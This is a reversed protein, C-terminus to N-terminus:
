LICQLCFVFFSMTFSFCMVTCQLSSWLWTIWEAEANVNNLTLVFSKIPMLTLTRKQLSSPFGEPTGSGAKVLSRGLSNTHWWLDIGHRSSIKGWIHSNQIYKLSILITSPFCECTISTSGSRYNGWLADYVPHEAQEHGHQEHWFLVNLHGDM